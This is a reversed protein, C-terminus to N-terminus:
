KKPSVVGISTRPALSVDTQPVIVGNRLIRHIGGMVELLRDRYCLYEANDGILYSGNDAMGFFMYGSSMKTQVQVGQKHVPGLPVGPSNFYDGNIGALVQKDPSSSNKATIMASVRQVGNVVPKDDPTA